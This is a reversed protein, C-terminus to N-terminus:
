GAIGVPMVVHTADGQKPDTDVLVSLEERKRRRNDEKKEAKASRCGRDGRDVDSM